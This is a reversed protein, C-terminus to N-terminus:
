IEHEKRITRHLRKRRCVFSSHCAWIRGNDKRERKEVFQYENSNWIIIEESFRSLHMMITSLASLFEILYDRDSVGDMSNLTQRKYM